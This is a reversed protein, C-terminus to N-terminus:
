RSLTRDRLARDSALGLFLISLAWMLPYVLNVEPVVLTSDFSYRVTEVLHLLPNYLLFEQTQRGIMSLTFFIGSTFYLFRTLVNVLLRLSQLVVSLTEILLGLGIGMVWLLILAAIAKLPDRLRLDEGFYVAAVIFLVLVCLTTAGELLARAIVVDLPKVQRHALLAFNSRISGNLRNYTQQFTFYSMLGTALFLQVSMSGVSDRGGFYFLVWFVGVHLSPEILAWLYGLKHRGFRTRVERLVLARIVRGQEQLANLLGRHKADRVTAPSLHFERPVPQKLITSIDNVVDGGEPGSAAMVRSKSAERALEASGLSFQCFRKRFYGILRYVLPWGTM